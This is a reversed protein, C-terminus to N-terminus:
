YDRRRVEHVDPLEALRAALANGAAQDPIEIELQMRWLGSRRDLRGKQSVLRAKFQGLALALDRMLGQRSAASTGEAEPPESALELRLFRPLAADAPIEVPLIREPHRGALHRLNPCDPRHLKLGQGKTVFAVASTGPGPHCCSAPQALMGSLTLGRDSAAAEAQPLLPPLDAQEPRLLARAQQRLEEREIRNEGLAEFLAEPSRAGLRTRLAAQQDRDLGLRRVLREWITRGTERASERQRTRFWSRVRARARRTALYGAAPDAWDRRPQANKGTLIEVTDASNLRTTLPVLRGNVRAGRTSHGLDSHLRYALDLPTAGRPLEVVDGRPTFVYVQDLDVQPTEGEEIAKRLREMTDQFADVEGRGGEKYRWHAAVGLEARAHMEDTRIQVELTKGERARVATHLSQYGNPKPNAIYDDYEGPIQSWLSQVVSLAAYCDAVTDVHVRLARLDFLREFPLRKRQMKNFISYLHKPRGHIRAPIGADELATALQARVAEIYAERDARREEILEAMHRYTEPELHRFALDELEWKLQGLGLRHALPAYLDLTERAARRRYDFDVVGPLARLRELRYVLKVLLVRPDRIMSMILRRLNEAQSDGDLNLQNEAFRNLAHLQEVLGAITSDFERAIREMDFDTRLRPDGLVALILLLCDARIEHLVFAARLGRPLEPEAHDVAVALDCAHRLMPCDPAAALLATRLQPAPTDLRYEM